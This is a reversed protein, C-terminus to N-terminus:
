DNYVFVEAYKVGFDLAEQHNDFYVDIKNGKIAGGTDHAIYEHGNIVVKTDYPIVNPDVAISKGQTLVKGISGYVIENGNKDVPRNIAYQDCCKSCGCYATLKFTGLSRKVDKVIVKEENNVETNIKESKSKSEVKTTIVEKEEKKTEVENNEKIKALKTEEKILEVKSDEEIENITDIRDLQEIEIIEIEKLDKISNLIIEQRLMERNPSDDIGVCNIEMPSLIISGGLILTALTRLMKLKM